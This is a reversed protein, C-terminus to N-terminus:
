SIGAGLFTSVRRRFVRALEVIESERIQKTIRDDQWLFKARYSLRKAVDITLSTVDRNATLAQLVTTSFQPHSVLRNLLIFAERILLTRERFVEFSQASDLAELDVDSILSEMISALINTREPLLRHNLMIGLGAKGLSAIFALVAIASRRLMLEKRSNGTCAVCDVLGDMIASFEQFSPNIKTDIETSGPAEADETCGFCFAATIKPCNLLQYLLNVAKKRVCFGAEKNLLQSISRFVLVSGFKERESYADCSILIINMISVVEVRVHEELNTMAIRSMLEFLWFWDFKTGSPICSNRTANFWKERLQSDCQNLINKDIPYSLCRSAFLQQECTYALIQETFPGAVMINDRRGIKKRLNLAHKLVIHLVRLSRYVVIGNKLSCCDILAELLDELKVMENSIKTLTLYLHSIKAADASYTSQGHDRLPVPLAMNTSSPLSLNLYGFLVQFDVECTEFLKLVLDKGLKQVDFLDWVDLLKNHHQYAVFLDNKISSNDYADANDTQVGVAKSASICRNTRFAFSDKSSNSKQCELLVGHDDHRGDVCHLSIINAYCDVAEKSEIRSSVFKLQEEKKDREKKLEICEEELVTLQKSVRGLERKLSDIEQEKATDPGYSVSSSFSFSTSAPASLGHGQCNSVVSHTDHLRQSLQRPPSYSIDGFSRAPPPPCQPSPPHHHLQQQTASISLALEEAQVLQDLFDADWEEVEYGESAM